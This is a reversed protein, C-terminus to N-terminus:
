AYVVCRLLVFLLYLVGSEYRLSVSVNTLRKFNLELLFYKRIGLKNDVAEEKTLSELSM